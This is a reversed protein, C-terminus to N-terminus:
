RRKPPLQSLVDAKLRRIMLLERLLIGLEIMNSSGSFDWGFKDKKADCYRM